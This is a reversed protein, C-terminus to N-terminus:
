TAAAAGAVGLQGGGGDNGFTSEFVFVGAQLTGVIKGETVDAASPSIIHCREIGGTAGSAFTFPLATSLNNIGRCRSMWFNACGTTRNHIIGTEFNGWFECDEVIVFESDELYIVGTNAADDTGAPDTPQIFVCDKVRLFDKTTAMNIFNLCEKGSSTKFECNQIVTNEANVDLMVALSDIDSVFRLGYILCDDADVDFDATTATDFTLTPRLDGEGIGIIRVGRVDLDVAAAASLTESHGPMVIIVDGKGATCQNIAFDLTNFPSDPDKGQTAVDAAFSEANGVFFVEGTALTMGIGPLIPVGASSILNPFKTLVM